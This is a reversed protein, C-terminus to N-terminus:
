GRSRELLIMMLLGLVVRPEEAQDMPGLPDMRFRGEWFAPEKSLRMLPQGNPRTVLYSPNLFYGTFMGLIPIENLLADGVKIWGNEERVSMTAQAGDVFEYEARWISRMGKRRISGVQYGNTATMHYSASFDIVRDANITYLPQTQSSDTFVTVAEKLKFAKQKVYMVVNGTADTVTIQPAIAVIKFSLTLPYNM